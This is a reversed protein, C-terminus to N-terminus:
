SYLEEIEKAFRENIGRRKLKFTPTLLDTDPLWEDTLLKWKKVREANNFRAMAQEVGDAFATQVEPHQALEELSEYQIGRQAAWGPAVEADLVLLASVFPRNDGIVAAQAVLPISKLEAELNAPSINKGGATIILEKKRDIIRLYGEDDIEGIDGSHLWGDEDLAEATKEPDNLYGVFVHGGRCCVEGDPFIAVESGPMAKGVTGPKVRVREFTMAGTNESMGYVEALPVGIARFWRILDAPIPAAGTIAMECQDLGVLERVTSFAVADLFEYTSIEEDTAEGFTMKEKIPIAAEVAENFKQAKEPDAALAATVGAYLKEWVRPVGFAVNPRVAILHPLLQSTDPCTTVELGAIALSYQSVIREAIHAMPLYSVVRKGQMEERTWGYSILGSEIVWCVNYNSIMVGKPNGTTGSTYIITALDEPKGISAAEALDVPDPETLAAHGVVGDPLESPDVITVITRLKPLNARVPEFKALFDANEVVAVVAECHGALYEVQDPSSSNYISVPTAGCLLVALDIWHFEPINRMMLVVRDGPEVGLARFGAAARAAKEGLEQFTLSGLSGDPQMWRLATEGGYKAVTDVFERAVTRGAVLQDLDAKTVTGM